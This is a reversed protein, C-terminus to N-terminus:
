AEEFVSTYSTLFFRQTSDESSQLGRGRKGSNGNSNSSDVVMITCETSSSRGASDVASVVVTYLRNDELIPDKICQGNASTTCTTSAIYLGAKKNLFEAQYLLAMQQSHFNEVENAYVQVTVDLPGGCNDTATYDLNVDYQVGSGTEDVEIATTPGSGDDFSCTVAPDEEDIYVPVTRSVAQNGCEDVADIVVTSDYCTDFLEITTNYERVAQDCDDVATVTSDVCELADSSSTFWRESGDTSTSACQCLSQGIDIDPAYQDEDSVSVVVPIDILSFLLLFLFL